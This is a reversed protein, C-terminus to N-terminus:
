APKPTLDAATLTERYFREGNEGIGSVTLHAGDVDVLGANYRVARFLVGPPAGLPEGFRRAVPGIQIERIGFAHRHSAFWHQDASVFLIGPIGVIAAFIADRETTFSAWHDDGNGFDLPVSTLVLKFTATSAALGDLLWRRQAAGLMTKADDPAANASRFRRCDLLFCELHAGWRWSRYRIENGPARLAGVPRRPFFEDWVQLAAAYRQPEAAALAADWNNRFEHDDYIAALGCASLMARVPPHNRLEAHRERYAAVTQAPPGNDTYPFDGISIVLDPDAAIVADLIGTAFVPNPDYDASIAVRVPKPNDAFPATRVSHTVAPAGAIAITIEHVTDAALGTLELAGGGADLGLPAERVLMAGARVAITAVAVPRSTWVAIVVSDEDPDLVATSLAPLNDGCGAALALTGAGLLQLIERRTPSV